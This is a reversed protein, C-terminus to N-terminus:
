GSRYMSGTFGGCAGATPAAVILGMASKSEMLATTYLTIRNLVGGDILHRNEMKAQFNGSQYGLIRDDYQTGALGAQIADQMIEIIGSMKQTVQEDTIAGRAREYHIALEWLDLNKDHNYALM